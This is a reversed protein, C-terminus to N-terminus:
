RRRLPQLLMHIMCQIGFACAVISGIAGLSLGFLFPVPVRNAVVSITVCITGQVIAGAAAMSLFSRTQMANDDMEFRRLIRGLVLATTAGSFYVVAIHRIWPTEHLLAAGQEADQIKAEYLGDASLM